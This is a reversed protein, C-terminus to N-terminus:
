FQPAGGMGMFNQGNVPMPGPSPHRMVSQHMAQAQPLGFQPNMNMQMQMQMMPTMQPMQLHQSAYAPALSPSNYQQQQQGPSLTQPHPTHSASPVSSPSPSIEGQPAQMKQMAQLEYFAFDQLLSTRAPHTHFIRLMEQGADPLLEQTDRSNTVPKREQTNNLRIHRLNANPIDRVFIWQVKFVGKWKDSAWVTSSRTYDVPTLMEAMGCFHGSANVSFFLYIPGRGACEKFAKDLRKNGPDTSSWIEYKLSKHVDDETYSKIVFYRAFTPRIDFSTPNYGKAAILSPVDIPTNVFGQQSQPAGIGNNGQAQGQNGQGQPFSTTVGLRPAQGQSGGQQQNLYQSPISPVNPIGGSGPKGQQGQQYAYQLNPNSSRGGLLREKQDWGATGSATIARDGQDGPGSTGRQHVQQQPQAHGIAPVYASASVPGHGQSLPTKRGDFNTVLQLKGGGGNNGNQPRMGPAQAPPPHNPNFRPPHASQGAQFNTPIHNAGYSNSNIELQSLARQVDDIAANNNGGAISGGPTRWEGPTSWPSGRGVPSTPYQAPPPSRPFYSEDEYGDASEDGHEEDADTPSPPEQGKAIDSYKNPAQLTGARKLGSPPMQRPGGAAGYTLSQHRRVGSGAPPPSPVHSHFHPSLPSQGSSQSHSDMLQQHQSISHEEEERLGRMEREWDEEDGEHGAIASLSNMTRPTMTGGQRSANGQFARHYRTPLSSQRHLSSKEGVAGVGGVWDQDVVEDDYGLQQEATEESIPARAGTRSTRSSASITHHRRVGTSPVSEPVPPPSIPHGSQSM